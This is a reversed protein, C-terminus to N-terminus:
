KATLKEELYQTFRQWSKMDADKRYRQSGFVTFAHPAGSYTVMEHTVGAQELEEALQAFDDLSVAADASGHFVLVEGKAQEYNQAEPTELGGHFSVFGKFDAGSRAFELIAAGGFCYGAAVGNGIEVGMAQAANLAGNLRARMLQRDAYLSQTMRKKDEVKDPRVGKGYLDAVFVSYGLEGLMQARKKEYDTIGDWDHVIYVFPASPAQAVLYGEFLEDGVEYEVDKGVSQANGLAISAQFIIVLLLVFRTYRM